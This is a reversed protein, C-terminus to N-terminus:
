AQTIDYKINIRAEGGLPSYILALCFFNTSSELSYRHWCSLSVSRCYRSFFIPLVPVPARKLVPVTTSSSVAETESKANKEKKKIMERRMRALLEKISKRQKRRRNSRSYRHHHNQRRRFSKEKKKIM